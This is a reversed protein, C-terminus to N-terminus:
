QCTVEWVASPGGLDADRSGLAAQPRVDIAERLVLSNAIRSNPQCVLFWEDGGVAFQASSPWAEKPALLRRRMTDLMLSFGAEGTVYRLRKAGAWLANLDKRLEEGQAVVRTLARSLVTRMVAKAELAADM